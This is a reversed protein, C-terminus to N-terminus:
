SCGEFHASEATENGETESEEVESREMGCDEVESKKAESGGGVENSKIKGGSMGSKKM